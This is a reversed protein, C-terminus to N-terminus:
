ATGELSAWSGPCFSCGSSFTWAKHQRCSGAVLPHLGPGVAALTWNAFKQKEDQLLMEHSRCGNVLSECAELTWHIRM